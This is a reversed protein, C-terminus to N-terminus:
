WSITLEVHINEWHADVTVSSVGISGTFDPWALAAGGGHPDVTGPGAYAVQGSADIFEGLGTSGEPGSTARLTYFGDAIPAFGNSAIYVFSIDAGAALDAESINEMGVLGANVVTVDDRSAYVLGETDIELGRAAAEAQMAQGVDERSLATTADIAGSSAAYATPVALFALVLALVTFTRISHDKTFM